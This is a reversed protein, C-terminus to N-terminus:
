DFEEDIKKIISRVQDTMDSEDFSSNSPVFNDNSLQFNQNQTPYQSLTHIGNSPFVTHPQCQNTNMPQSHVVHAPLQQHQNFQQQQSHLMQPCSQPYMQVPVSSLQQQNPNLIQPQQQNWYPIQSQQQQVPETVTSIQLNNILTVLATCLDPNSVLQQILDENNAFQLPQPNSRSFGNPSPAEKTSFPDDPLPKSTCDSTEYYDKL